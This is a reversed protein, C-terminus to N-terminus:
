NFEGARCYEGSFGRPCQCGTTPSGSAAQGRRPVCTGGNECPTAGTTASCAAFSYFLSSTVDVNVVTPYCFFMSTYM